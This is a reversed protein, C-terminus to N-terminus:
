RGMQTLKELPKKEIVTKLCYVEKMQTKKPSIKQLVTRM